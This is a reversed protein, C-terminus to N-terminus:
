SSNLDGDPRQAYLYLYGDSTGGLWGPLIEREQTIAVDLSAWTERGRAAPLRQSTPALKGTAFDYRYVFGDKGGTFASGNLVIMARSGQRPYRIKEDTGRNLDEAHQPTEFTRYGAIAGHDKFAKAKVDYSFFHGDPWTNGVVTDTKPDYALAYIGQGAVPVGL